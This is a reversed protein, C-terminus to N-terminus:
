PALRPFNPNARVVLACWTLPGVVGDVPLGVAAQFRSVAVPQWSARAVGPRAATVGPVVRRLASELLAPLRPDNEPDEPYTWNVPLPIRADVLQGPEMSLRAVSYKGDETGSRGPAYFVYSTATAGVLAQEENGFRVLAPLGIREITPLDAVLRAASFGAAEVTAAGPASGWLRLIEALSGGDPIPTAAVDAPAASGATGAAASTAEGSASPTAPAAANSPGGRERPTQRNATASWIGLALVIAVIAVAALTGGRGAEVGTATAAVVREREQLANAETQPQYRPTAAEAARRAEASPGEHDAIATEAIERNIVKTGLAYAALLCKDCIVNILRPTGRTYLAIAEIAGEKFEVAKENGAVLLRHRIYHPIEPRDLPTIHYRVAIRQRLQELRPHKLIENLEPQGVLILQVLKELETELNSLMRLSELVEIDLNQAEDIIVAVNGGRRAQDILFINLQDLLTKQSPNKGPVDIALDDLIAHLLEGKSLSPNLIVATKTNPDLTNLLQRCLTTKGTGIEGTIVIFGKKEKIGYLLSSMAEEHRQSRFMYRTDPTMRFPEDGLGFYEKYM